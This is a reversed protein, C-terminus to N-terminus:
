GPLVLSSLSSGFLLAKENGAIGQPRPVVPDRHHHVAKGEAAFRHAKKGSTRVAPRVPGPEDSAM